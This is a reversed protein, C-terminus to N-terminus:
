PIGNQLVYCQITVHGSCPNTMQNALLLTNELIINGQATTNSTTAASSTSNTTPISTSTPPPPQATPPPLTTTPPDSTQPPPFTQQPPPPANAQSSCQTLPTSLPVEQNASNIKRYGVSTLNNVNSNSHTESQSAYSKKYLWMGKAIKSYKEVKTLSNQKRYPIVPTYGDFRTWTRTPNPNYNNGLCSM